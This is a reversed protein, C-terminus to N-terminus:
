EAVDLFAPCGSPCGDRRFQLRGDIFIRSQFAAHVRQPRRQGVHYVPYVRSRCLLVPAPCSSGRLCLRHVGRRSVSYSVALRHRLVLLVLVFCCSAAINRARYWAVAHAAVAAVQRAHRARDRSPVAAHGDAAHADVHGRRFRGLFFHFFEGFPDVDRREPFVSVSERPHRDAFHDDDHAGNRHVEVRAFPPRPDTPRDDGHMVSPTALVSSRTWFRPAGGVVPSRVRRSRRLPRMLLSTLLRSPLLPLCRPCFPRLISASLRCSISLNSLGSSSEYSTPRRFASSRSTCVPRPFM